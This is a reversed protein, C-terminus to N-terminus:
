NKIKLNSKLKYATWPRRDHGGHLEPYERNKDEVYNICGSEIRRPSTITPDKDLLEKKKKRHSTDDRHIKKIVTITLDEISHGVLNFNAQVGLTLNEKSHGM